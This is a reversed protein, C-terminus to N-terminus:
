LRIITPSDGKKIKVDKRISRKLREYEGRWATAGFYWIAAKAIRGMKITKQILDDQDVSKFYSSHQCDYTAVVVHHELSNRLLRLDSYRGLGYEMSLALRYLASLAPTATRKLAPHLESRNKPIDKYKRPRGWITNFKVKKENHKLHFYSNIAFSIQSLISYFGSFATMILGIEINHTSFPSVRWITIQKKLKIPVIGIGEMLCWRATSFSRHLSNIIEIVEELSPRRKSGKLISPLTYVDFAYPTEIACLPCPNLALKNKWIWNVVKNSKKPHLKPHNVEKKFQQLTAKYSKLYIPEDKAIEVAKKYDLFAKQPLCKHKWMWSNIKMLTLGRTALAKHHKPNEPIVERLEDLAEIYRGQEMLAISLNVQADYNKQYRLCEDFHNVAKSLSPKTGPGYGREKQGIALYGTGLNYHLSYLHQKKVYDKQSELLRVGEWILNTNKLDSGADILIGSLNITRILPNQTKTAAYRALKISKKTEGNDLLKRANNFLETVNAKM